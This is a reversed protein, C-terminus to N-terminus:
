ARQHQEGAAPNSRIDRSPARGSLPDLRDTEVVALAVGDLHIGAARALSIARRKGSQAGRSPGSWTM